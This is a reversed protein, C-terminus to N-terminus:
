AGTEFDTASCGHELFMRSWVEMADARSNCFVSYWYLVRLSEQAVM